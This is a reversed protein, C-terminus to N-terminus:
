FWKEAMELCLQYPDMPGHDLTSGGNMAWNNEFEELQKFFATQDYERGDKLCSILEEVYM